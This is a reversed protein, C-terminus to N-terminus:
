IKSACGSFGLPATAKFDAIATPIGPAPFSIMFLLKNSSSFLKMTGNVTIPMTATTIRSIAPRKMGEDIEVHYDDQRFLSLLRAGGAPPADTERGKLM